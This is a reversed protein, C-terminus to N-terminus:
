YRPMSAPARAPLAYPDTGQFVTDSDNRPITPADTDVLTNCIQPNSANSGCACARLQMAGGQGCLNPTVGPVENAEDEKDARQALGAMAAMMSTIASMDQNGAAQNSTGGNNKAQQRASSATQALDSCTSKAKAVRELGAKLAGQKKEANCKSEAMKKLKQADCKNECSMYGKDCSCAFQNYAIATKANAGSASGNAGNSSAQNNQMRLGSMMNSAQAGQIASDQSEDCATEADEQKSECAKVYDSVMKECNSGGGKGKEGEDDPSCQKGDAGNGANQSQGQQQNQPQQQQGQQPQQQQQQQEAKKEKAQKDAEAKNAQYQALATSYAQDALSQCLGKQTTENVCSSAIYSSRDMQPVTGASGMGSLSVGSVSAGTAVASDTTQLGTDTGAAYGYANTGPAPTSSYSNSYSSARAPPAPAPEATTLSPDSLCSGDEFCITGANAAFSLLIVGALVATQRITGM